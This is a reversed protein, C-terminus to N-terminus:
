DLDIDLDLATRRGEGDTRVVVVPLTSAPRSSGALRNATLDIRTLTDRSRTRVDEVKLGRGPDPFVEVAGPPEAWSLWVTLEASGSVPLPGGTVSVSVEGPRAPRPLRDRWGAFASRAAEGSEGALPLEAALEASGLVCVDKCALWSAKATVPLAAGAHAPARVEAALLVPEKYGYGIIGGPQTFRVPAPWELDGIGYGAPLELDVETTLGAGGPNRWYVHWGPEPELVVGVRFTAGPTPTELDSVLRARVHSDEAAASVALGLVLGATAIRIRKVCRPLPLV